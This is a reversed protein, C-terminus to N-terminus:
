TTQSDALRPIVPVGRPEFPLAPSMAIQGDALGLPILPSGSSAPTLTAPMAPETSRPAVAVTGAPPLVGQDLPLDATVPGVPVSSSPVGQSLPVRPSSSPQDLPLDATVPGAPVSSSPVGQSLPVRPSSSTPVNAFVKSPASGGSTSGGSGGPTPPLPSPSLSSPSVPGLPGAGAGGTGGAGGSIDVNQLDAGMETATLNAKDAGDSLVKDVQLLDQAMTQTATLLTQIHTNLTSTLTGFDSLVRDASPLVGSAGPLLASYGGSPDGGTGAAGSSSKSGAAFEALKNMPDSQLDEVFNALKQQAFATLYSDTIKFNGTGM